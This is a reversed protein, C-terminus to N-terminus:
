HYERREQVLIKVISLAFISDNSINRLYQYLNNNEPTNLTPTPMLEGDLLFRCDRGVAAMSRTIYTEDIAASNWAYQSVKSNRAFM